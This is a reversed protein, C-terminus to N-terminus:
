SLTTPCTLYNSRVRGVPFYNLYDANVCLGDHDELTLAMSRDVRGMELLFVMKIVLAKKEVEKSRLCKM